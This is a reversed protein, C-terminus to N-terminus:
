LTIQLEKLKVAFYLNQLQHLYITHWNFYIYHREAIAIGFSNSCDQTPRFHFVYNDLEWDSYKSEKYRLKFGCKLLIEETILIPKLTNQENTADKIYMLTGPTVKHVQQLHDTIYNGVRLDKAEIM